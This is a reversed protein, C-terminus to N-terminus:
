VDQMLKETFNVADVVCIISDLRVRGDMDQMLFSQAIPLPESM